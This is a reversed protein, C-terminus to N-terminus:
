QPEKEISIQQQSASQSTSFIEIRDQITQDNAIIIIMNVTNEYPSFTPQYQLLPKPASLSVNQILNNSM